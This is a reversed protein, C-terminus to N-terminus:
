NDKMCKRVKERFSKNAVSWPGPLIRSKGNINLIIKDTLAKNNPIYKATMSGQKIETKGKPQTLSNLENIITIDSDNSNWAFTNFPVVFLVILIIAKISIKEM